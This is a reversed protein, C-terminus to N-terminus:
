DARIKADLIVKGWREVDGRMIAAFEELTVPTPQYQLSLLRQRIQPDNLAARIERNLRELVPRPTGAPAIYGYWPNAEYGSIGAEAVTPIEPFDPLRAGAAVALVRVKGERMAGIVNSFTQVFVPVQGGLADNLAPGCGRYPVHVLDTGTNLKFLEGALHQALGNGCSAYPIEGPKAKALAILDAISKAPFSPHVGIALTSRSVIGVPVLDKLTNFPLNPYLTVNAALGDTTFGLTYGDPAARAVIEHAVNGAGGPRNEVIFPQGLRESLKASVLRAQLDTGGGPPVPVIVRVPKIPWESQARASATPLLALAACAATLVLTPWARHGRSTM